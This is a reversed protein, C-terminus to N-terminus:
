FLAWACKEFPASRGFRSSADSPMYSSHSDAARSRVVAERRSMFQGVRLAKSHFKRQAADPTEIDLNTEQKRGAM